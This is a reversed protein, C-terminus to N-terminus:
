KLSRRDATIIEGTSLVVHLEAAKGGEDDPEISALWFWPPSCKCQHGIDKAVNHPIMLIESCALCMVHFRGCKDCKGVYHVFSLFRRNDPTGDAPSLAMIIEPYGSWFILGERCRPHQCRPWKSPDFHELRDLPLLRISILSQARREATKSYGNPCVLYGHSANVDEMLGKFAEVDGVTIKRRTMKADVIVRRAADPGHRSDILVDIQRRIKTIRGTIYANPTVTVETPSHQSALEAILREYREWDPFKRMRCGLQTLVIAYRCEFM